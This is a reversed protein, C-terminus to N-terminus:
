SKTVSIAVAEAIQVVIQNGPTINSLDISKDVKVTKTSGDSYQLTVKHKPADVATVTASQIETAAVLGGPKAGIPNLAVVGASASAPPPGSKYIAVAIEETVVATVHDGVQIQAFNVANPGNAKFTSRKGDPTQLTVKHDSANIAVVIATTTLTEVEYGGNQTQVVTASETSEMTKHCSATAVVAAPLLAMVAWKLSRASM